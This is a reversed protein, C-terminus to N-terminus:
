CCESKQGLLVALLTTEFRISGIGRKGECKTMDKYKVQPPKKGKGYLNLYTRRGDTTLVFIPQLLFLIRPLINIVSNIVLLSLQVKDRRPM